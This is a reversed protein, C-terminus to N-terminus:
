ACSALCIRSPMTEPSYTGPSRSGGTRSSASLAPTLGLVICRASVSSSRSPMTKGWRVAPRKTVSSAASIAAALSVSARSCVAPYREAM